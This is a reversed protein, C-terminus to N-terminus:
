AVCEVWVEDALPCSKQTYPCDHINKELGGCYVNTLWMYGSSRVKDAPAPYTAQVGSTYGLQVCAVHADRPDWSNSCIGGFAGYRYLELRGVNPRAGDVLRLTQCTVTALHTCPQPVGSEQCDDLALEDGKCQMGGRFLISSKAKKTAEIAGSLGRERCLVHADRIDWDNACLDLWSRQRFVRVTGSHDKASSGVINIATNTVIGIDDEHTCESTDESYACDLISDVLGPCTMNLIKIEGTGRGYRRTNWRNYYFSRDLELRIMHADANTFNKDCMTGWTGDKFLEVRGAKRSPGDVLRLITCRVGADNAHTCTGLPTQPCHSIRSESGDCLLGDYHITGSGQGFHAGDFTRLGGHFGLMRCIVEGDTIDWKHDCVTGWSGDKYVEVRGEYYHRGGALRVDAQCIVGADESHSCDSTTSKSCDNLVAESGTCAMDFSIPVTGPPFYGGQKSAIYGPFGLQKCVVTAELDDWSDDCITHWRGNHFHEVRGEYYGAGDVLRIQECTISIDESHACNSTTVHACHSVTKERGSCVVDDMVIPVSDDANNGFSRGHQFGLQRCAVQTSMPTWYDDCVTGWRGGTYAELRGQYSNGAVLRLNQCVVGATRMNSAYLTEGNVTCDSLKAESGSCRVDTIFVQVYDAPLQKMIELAEPFGLEKCAVNGDNMDWGADGVAGWKGGSYIEVRGANDGPGGVLRIPHDGSTDSACTPPEGSWTGDSLCNLNENGALTYKFKCFFSATNGEVRPGRRIGNAPHELVPCVMVVKVQTKNSEVVGLTNSARVHYFGEHSKQINRFVLVAKTEEQYTDYQGEGPTIEVGDKFWADVVTFGSLRASISSYFISGFEVFRTSITATPLAAVGVYGENSNVGAIRNLATCSYLGSDTAIFPKIQLSGNPLLSFRDNLALNMIHGDKIWKWWETHQSFCDLTVTDNPHVEGGKPHVTISPSVGVSCNEGLFGPLCICKTEGTVCDQICSGDNECVMGVCSTKSTEYHTYGARASMSTMNKTKDVLECGHLGDDGADREFNYSLCKGNDLCEFACHIPSIVQHTAIIGKDIAHDVDKEAFNGINQCSSRM